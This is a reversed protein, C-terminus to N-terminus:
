DVSALGKVDGFWRDPWVGEDAKFARKEWTAYWTNGDTTFVRFRHMDGEEDLGHAVVVFVNLPFRMVSYVRGRVGDEVAESKLLGM